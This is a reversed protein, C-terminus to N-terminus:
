NELGIAEEVSKFYSAKSIVLWIILKSVELDQENDQLGLDALIEKSFENTFTNKLEKHRLGGLTKKQFDSFGGTIKSLIAYDHSIIELHDRYENRIFEETEVEVNFEDFFTDFDPSDILTAETHAAFQQKDIVQTPNETSDSILLRWTNMLKPAQEPKIGATVLFERVMDKLSQLRAEEDEGSYQIKVITLQTPDFDTEFLKSNEQKADKFHKQIKKQNSESLNQFSVKMYSSDFVSESTKGFPKSTNTVIALEPIENNIQGSELDNSLVRIADRVSSAPIQAAINKVEKVQFYHMSGDEYRIDIDDQGEVNIWEVEKIRLILLYLAAFDQYHFGRQTGSANTSGVSM